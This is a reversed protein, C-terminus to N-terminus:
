RALNPASRDVTDDSPCATADSSNPMIALKIPQPVGSPPRAGIDVHRIADAIAMDLNRDGTPSALEVQTVLGAPSVWLRIITRYHTPRTQDRRCLAATVAEQVAAAYIIFRPLPRSEGAAPATALIYVGSGIPRPALGTGTLLLHLASEPTLSGQVASSIRGAIVASDAIVAVNATTMFRELATALSQAPIDFVVTTTQVSSDATAASCHLSTAVAIVIALITAMSSAPPRGRRCVRHRAQPHLKAVLIPRHVASGWQRFDIDVGPDLGPVPKKRVM